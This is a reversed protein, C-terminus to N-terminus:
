AEVPTEESPTEESPTEESPAEAPAPAAEIHGEIEKLASMFQDWIGKEAPFGVASKFRKAGPETPNAPFWGKSISIFMSEDGSEGVVKKLAVELFSNNAYKIEKGLITEFKAM